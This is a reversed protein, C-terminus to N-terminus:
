ANKCKYLGNKMVFANGDVKKGSEDVAWRRASVLRINRDCADQLDYFLQELEPKLGTLPMEGGSDTTEDSADSLEETLENVPTEAPIPQPTTDTPQSTNVTTTNAVETSGDTAQVAMRGPIPWERRVLKLKTQWYTSGSLSYDKAWRWM